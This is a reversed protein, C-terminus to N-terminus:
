RPPLVFARAADFRGAERAGHQQLWRAIRDGTDDPWAATHVIAHTALYSPPFIGSYGGLMRWGRTSAFFMYRLEYANDGFPFEVLVAGPGLQSAWRYILPVQLTPSLYAPVPALGASVFPWPRNVPFPAPRTQWLFIGCGVVAVIQAIRRARSEILAVGVGALSALFFFFLMAFRAAARVGRFGPVYDYFVRYLGPLGVAHDAGRAVPGLSLWFALVLAVALAVVPWRIDRRVFAFGGAVIALMLPVSFGPLAARYQDLTASFRIVEELPRAFGLRRGMAVYPMAFPLTFVLTVAAAVVLDIRVRPLRAKGNWILDAVVFAAVFPACYLAHFGASLNLAVLAAAGWALSARSGKAIYRHWGLLAFPLWHISLTQLHSIELTLRYENFAFFVGATLAAVRSGTLERLLLFAGFASLAFSLLLAVNYCLLLNGTAWYIPLIQVTETFLHDSYALANPEPYFINADWLATLSSFHGALARTLHEAVWGMVWTNFLPDGFDSALARAPHAALPWTMLVTLLAFGLGAVTAEASHRERSPM